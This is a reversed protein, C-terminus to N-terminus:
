EPSAEATAKAKRGRKKKPAPEPEPEPEPDPEPEAAIAVPDLGLERALTEMQDLQLTTLAGLKICKWLLAPDTAERIWEKIATEAEEPDDPWQGGLLGFARLLSPALGEMYLVTDALDRLEILSLERPGLRAIATALKNKRDKREQWSLTPGRGDDDDAESEDDGDHMGLERAVALADKRTVVYYPIGEADAQMLITPPPNKALAIVEGWRRNGNDYHCLSDLLYVAQENHLARVADAGEVVRGGKERHAAKIREFHAATKGDYCVSDTCTDDHAIDGFLEPQNGTRKHCDTCAGAAPCLTADVPDFPAHELRTMFWDRIMQAARTASMPSGTHDAAVRETAEVQQSPTPIRAILLAVTPTIRGDRLYERAEECLSTLKLRSYVHTKSKGVKDAIEEVTYGHTTHLREYGEAEELPPVDERQLNETVALELAEADTLTRVVAPIQKLGALMAALWRREGSVILFRANDPRVLIPQLVGVKGISDALERLREPDITRRPNNAWPSIMSIDLMEAASEGRFAMAEVTAPKM